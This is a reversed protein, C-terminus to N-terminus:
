LTNTNIQNNLDVPFCTLRKNIENGATAFNYGTSSIFIGKGVAAVESDSFLVWWGSGGIDDGADNFPQIFVQERDGSALLEMSGNLAANITAQDSEQDATFSRLTDM